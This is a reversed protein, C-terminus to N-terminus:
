APSARELLRPRLPDKRPRRVCFSKGLLPYRGQVRLCTEKPTQWHFGGSLFRQIVFHAADFTLSDKNARKPPLAGICARIRLHSPETELEWPGVLRCEVELASGPISRWSPWDLDQYSSSSM